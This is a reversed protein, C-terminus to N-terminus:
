MTSKLIRCARLSVYMYILSTVSVYCLIVYGTRSTGLFNRKSQTWLRTQLQKQVSFVFIGCFHSFHIPLTRSGISLEQKAVEVINWMSRWNWLKFYSLLAPHSLRSAAGQIILAM